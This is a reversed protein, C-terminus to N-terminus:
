ALGIPAQTLRVDGGGLRRPPGRRAISRRDPHCDRERTTGHRSRGLVRDTGLSFCTACRDRLPRRDRSRRLLCRTPRLRLVLLPFTLCAPDDRGRRDLGADQTVPYRALHDLDRQRADRAPWRNVPRCRRKTCTKSRRPGNRRHRRSACPVRRVAGDDDPFLTSSAALSNLTRLAADGGLVATEAIKQLVKERELVYGEVPKPKRYFACFDCVATCINTYNINRDINYTRIPEPHLRRTVADAARGIAALDNSELLALGEDPMIREGAIAKDLIPQISM